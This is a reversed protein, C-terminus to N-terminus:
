RQRLQESSGTRWRSWVGWWFWPVAFLSHLWLLRTTYFDLRQRADGRAHPPSHWCHPLAWFQVPCFGADKGRHWPVPLGGLGSHSLSTIDDCSLQMVAHHIPSLPVRERRRGAASHWGIQSMKSSRLLLTATGRGAHISAGKPSLLVAANVLGLPHSADAGLLEEENSSHTYKSTNVPHAAHSCPTAYLFFYYFVPPPKDPKVSPLTTWSSITNKWSMACNPANKM